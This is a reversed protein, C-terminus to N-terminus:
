LWVLLYAKADKWDAVPIELCHEQQRSHVMRKETEGEVDRKWRGHRKRACMNSPDSGREHEQQAAETEKEQRDSVQKHM